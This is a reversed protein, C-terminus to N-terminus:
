TMMEALEIWLDVRWVETGDALVIVEADGMMDLVDELFQRREDM